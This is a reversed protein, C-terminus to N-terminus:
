VFPTGREANRKLLPEVAKWFEPNDAQKRIEAETERKSQMLKRYFVLLREEQGLTLEEDRIGKFKKQTEM